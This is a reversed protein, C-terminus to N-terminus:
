VSLIGHGTQGTVPLGMKATSFEWFLGDNVLKKKLCPCLVWALIFITIFLKVGKFFICSYFRVYKIRLTKRFKNIWRLCAYRNMACPAEGLQTIDCARSRNKRQPMRRSLVNVTAKIMRQTGLFLTEVFSLDGRGWGGVGWGTNVLLGPGLWLQCVRSLLGLCVSLFGISAEWGRLSPFVIGCRSEKSSGRSEQLLPRFLSLTDGKLSLKSSPPPSTASFSPPTCYVHAHVHWVSPCKYPLSLPHPLTLPLPPRPSILLFSLCLM